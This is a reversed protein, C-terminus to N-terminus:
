LNLNMNKKQLLADYDLFDLSIFIKRNRHSFEFPISNWISFNSIYSRLGWIEHANIGSAEGGLDTYYNHNLFFCNKASYIPGCIPLNIFDDSFPSDAIPLSSLDPMPLDTLYSDTLNVRLGSYPFLFPEKLTQFTLVLGKDNLKFIYKEGEENASLILCFFSLVLIIHYKKM